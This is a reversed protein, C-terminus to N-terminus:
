SGKAYVTAMVIRPMQKSEVDGPTACPWSKPSTIRDNTIAASAENQESSMASRMRAESPRVRVNQSTMAPMVSPPPMQDICKMAM